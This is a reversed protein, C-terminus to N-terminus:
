QHPNFRAPTEARKEKKVKQSSASFPLSTINPPQIYFNFKLGVFNLNLDNLSIAILRKKEGGIRGFVKYKHFHM